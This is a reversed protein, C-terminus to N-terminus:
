AGCYDDTCFQLKPYEALIGFSSRLQISHSEVESSSSLQISSAVSLFLLNQSLDFGACNPVFIRIIRGSSINFPLSALVTSTDNSYTSVSQVWNGIDM